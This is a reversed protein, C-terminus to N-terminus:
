GELEARLSRVTEIIEDLADVVSAGREMEIVGKSWQPKGGAERRWQYEFVYRQGNVGLININSKALTALVRREM